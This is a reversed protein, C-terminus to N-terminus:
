NSWAALCITSRNLATKVTRPDRLLHHYYHPPPPLPPPSLALSLGALALLVLSRFYSSPPLSSFSVCVPRTSSSLTCGCGRARYGHVSTLAPRLSYEPSYNASIILHSLSIIVERRADVTQVSGGVFCVFLPVHILTGTSRLAARRHPSVSISDRHFPSPFPFTHPSFSPSLTSHIHSLSHSLSHILSHVLFLSLPPPLLVLPPGVTRSATQSLTPPSELFDSAGLFRKSNGSKIAIIIRGPDLKWRSINGM